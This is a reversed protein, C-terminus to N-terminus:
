LIGSASSLFKLITHTKKGQWDAPLFLQCMNLDATAQQLVQCNKQGRHDSPLLLAPHCLESWSNGAGHQEWNVGHVAPSSRCCGWGLAAALLHSALGKGHDKTTDQSAEVSASSVAATASCGRIGDPQLREQPCCVRQARSQWCSHSPICHM